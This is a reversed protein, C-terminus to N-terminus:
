SPPNIVRAFPEIQARRLDDQLAAAEHVPTAEPLTVVLVRTFMGFTNQVDTPARSYLIRHSIDPPQPPRLPSAGGGRVRVSAPEGRFSGGAPDTKAERERTSPSSPM